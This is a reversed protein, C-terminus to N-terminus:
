SWYSYRCRLDQFQSGKSCDGRLSIGMSSILSALLGGGRLYAGVASSAPSKLISQYKCNSQEKLMTSLILRSLSNKYVM